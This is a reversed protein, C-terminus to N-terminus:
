ARAIEIVRSELQPQERTAFEAPQQDEGAEDGNLLSLDIDPLHAVIREQLVDQWLFFDEESFAIKKQTYELSSQFM